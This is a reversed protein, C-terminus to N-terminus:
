RRQPPDLQSPRGPRRGLGFLLAASPEPIPAAGGTKFLWDSAYVHRHIGARATRRPERRLPEALRLLRRSRRSAARRLPVHLRPLRRFRRPRVPRRAHDVDRSRHGSNLGYSAGAPSPLSRSSRVALGDVADYTFDIEFLSGGNRYSAGIDEGGWSVGTSRSRRRRGLRPLPAHRQRRPRLRVDVGRLEIGTLGDLRLGYYPAAQNGDSHNSLSLWVDSQFPAALSPRRLPSSGDHAAAAFLSRM